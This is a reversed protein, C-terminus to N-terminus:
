EFGFGEGRRKLLVMNLCFGCLYILVTLLLAMWGPNNGNMNLVAEMQFGSCLNLVTEQGKNMANLTIKMLIRGWFYKLMLPLCLLIYKDTFFVSVLYAFVNACMGYLFVNICRKFCFVAEQFGPYMELYLEVENASYEYISPFKLYVLLGFIVYGVLMIIGGNIIASVAKASSYKFHNERILMLRNAGSLKENSIASLYGISLLFPLLLQTWTGIGKVWMDYRNLGPDALMVDKRLFLLLEIIMYSKGGNSTYGESLCCVLAVGFCSLLFFPLHMSKKIECLISRM